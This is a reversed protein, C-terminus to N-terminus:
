DALDKLQLYNYLAGLLNSDNQYKCINVRIGSYMGSLRRIKEVYRMVGTLFKPEASIGGGFLIVDPNLTVYLSVSLKAIEFYFSELLESVQSDGEEAWQYIKEGNVEEAPLGKAKAVQYCLGSTALYASSIPAGAEFVDYVSSFGDIPSYSDLKEKKLHVLFFTLEGALMDSGHYVKRDIIIGGGVGTGLAIVVANKADRANGKWVEALACAKADNEITVPLSDCAESIMDALPVENIYTLAGAVYVYGREYDIRGPMDMAIGEIDGRSRYEAYIGAIVQVFDEATKDMGLPTDAKKKEIFEGDITMLAYKIASGGVDFVLYM